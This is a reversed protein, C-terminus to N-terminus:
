IFLDAYAGPSSMKMHERSPDADADDALDAVLTAGGV